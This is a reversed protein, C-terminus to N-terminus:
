LAFEQVTARGRYSMATFEARNQLDNWRVVVNSLAHGVRVTGDIGCLVGCAGAKHCFSVDEARGDDGWTFCMEGRQKAAIVAEFTSRRILTFALGCHSVRQFDGVDPRPSGAVPGHPPQSGVCLAQVIGFDSGAKNNRLRALAGYDFAMDDDVYLISDANSALFQKALAEAAYHHALGATPELVTDGNWLGSVLLRTWSQVFLPHAGSGVRLGIAVKGWEGNM